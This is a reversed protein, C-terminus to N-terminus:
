PTPRATPPLHSYDDGAINWFQGSNDSCQAWVLGSGPPSYEGGPYGICMDGRSIQVAHYKWNFKFLQRDNPGNSARSQARPVTGAAASGEGVDLVKDMGDTFHLFGLGDVQREFLDVAALSNTCEHILIPAGDDASQPGLCVSPDLSSYLRAALAPGSSALAFLVNFALM